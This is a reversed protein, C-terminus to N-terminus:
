PDFLTSPPRDRPKNPSPTTATPLKPEWAHDTDHDGSDQLQGYNMTSTSYCLYPCHDFRDMPSHDMPVLNFLQQM